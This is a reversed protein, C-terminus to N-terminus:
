FRFNVFGKVSHFDPEADTSIVEPNGAGDDAPGKITYEGLNVYLYEAGLSWSDDIAWELGGGVTYGVRTKSSDIRGSGGTTFNDARLDYDVNAWALGGTGYILVSDFAVGLRARLTGWVDIKASARVQDDNGEIVFNKKFDDHIDSAEIDAIAGIVLADWQANYGVQGGGFIGHLELDDIGKVTGEVDSTVSVEDSGGFAYGLNGGIYFGSWISPRLEEPPPPPAYDAALTATTVAGLAAAALSLRLLLKTM